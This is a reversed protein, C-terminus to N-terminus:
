EDAEVHSDDSNLPAEDEDDDSDAQESVQTERYRMDGHSPYVMMKPVAQDALRQAAHEAILKENKTRFEDILRLSEDVSIMKCEKFKYEPHRVSSEEFIKTSPQKLHLSHNKPRLTRNPMFKEPHSYSETKRVVREYANKTPDIGTNDCKPKGLSLNLLRSAIDLHDFEREKVNTLLALSILKEKHEKLYGSNDASDKCGDVDKSSVSTQVPTKESILNRLYEVFKTCKEGKDPLTQLFKRRSLIKEQREILERLESLSKSRLDSLHGQRDEPLNMRM